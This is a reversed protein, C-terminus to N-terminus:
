PEVVAVAILQADGAATDNSVDRRVRLRFAEGAALSDINAGDTCLVNTIDVHGSTGPVTTATITQATAFGDSDLDQSGDGIREFAVDWGITGSTATAAAWHVYVALGGGTYSTQLVGLFIASEQTTTDFELVPTANRTNFTAPNSAPPFGQMATFTIWPKGSGGGAPTAWTADGRWFTSASASTGSNLNTVPLNGTVGTALPLGTANTLV